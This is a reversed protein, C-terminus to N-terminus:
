EARLPRLLLGNIAEEVSSRGDTIRAVADCIPMEVGLRQSLHATAQATAVGEVTVSPDIDEGRGLALGLRYNRSLESTCTLTLDGIGSLGMLTERRAGMKTALRLMEAFGRTILSARASDGLGAGICGGCAIAIVNKLAGGFEVGRTDTSRYLRLMKTSLQHQLAKSAAESSAAITLATPLGRGIDAAFSPGSLIAARASPLHKEIVGCTGLGTTLDIGKACAVASKGDFLRSHTQILGAVSQAPCALLVTDARRVEDIDGTVRLGDPFAVGPLRKRNERGAQMQSALAPDRAWVVVPKGDRAFAVALATGFAGAGLVAIM